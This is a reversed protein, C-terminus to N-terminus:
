QQVIVSADHVREHLLYLEMNMYWHEIPLYHSSQRVSPGASSTLFWVKWHWSVTETKTHFPLLTIPPVCFVNNSFIWGVICRQVHGHGSAHPFTFTFLLLSRLGNLPVEWGSLLIKMSLKVSSSVLIGLWVPYKWSFHIDMCQTDNTFFAM